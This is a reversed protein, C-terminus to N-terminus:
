NTDEEELVIERMAWKEGDYIFVDADEGEAPAPFSVKNGNKELLRRVIVEGCVDWVFGRSSNNGYCIDVLLDCLENEDPAIREAEEGFWRRITAINSATEDPDVSDYFSFVNYLHMRANYEAVLKALAKRKTGDIQKGSQYVSQDFPSAAKKRKLSGDFEREIRKCIRNMVCDGLGVPMMRDYYTLFEKQEDTLESYSVKQLDEVRMRFKCLANRQTNKIYTNYERMLDPYIYRMFYPKKDAVIRRNLNRSAQDEIRLAAHRDHWYLPMPKAVIGKAKDIVNQQYLQGSRIRYGLAKYEEDEPKFHSQVEYMSTIWNTTRGIENGFSEINANVLSEEDPIRKAAKRQICMLTPTVELRRVLVPNDTLMVLDGDFDCGNLAATITDWANLITVTHMHQYWYRADERAVPTVPRINNYCSMPARYCALRDAGVWYENYVEGAKLLGTVELGFISQCLAYPDGSVMSYNGHVKLVGTKAQNIRNRIMNYIQTMVYPDNAVRRDAMIARAYEPGIRAANKESISKGCLFLLSKRWDDGMSDNIQRITPAVLEEIDDDTMSYPQIFQYNLNREDELERPCTKTIGIQYGNLRCNDLYERMSGYSDWLKVMSTTFILEVNRIDVDDGWADKVMYNGAVKEAFDVFDFCFLMGKEYAFRSNAGSITYDLGLEKSWREALSPLILGFGDSADLHIEENEKLTMVPEGDQEDSLYLIDETFSTECDNVLLIGNPMSVPVSASCALARYAEFKAPVLEKSTDRGNDIRRRLEPALRDSVFVITSNKIGGNTGLLRVYRIGNIKFGDCARKYDKVKDIILCLYDPRFEVEDLQNYLSRIQKRTQLSEEQKKLYRISRKIEKAREDADVVGNLEDIWRIIQSDALSVIEGNLRAERLPLKM